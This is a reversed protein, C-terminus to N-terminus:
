ACIAHMNSGRGRNDSGGDGDSGGDSSSGGNHRQQWRQQQRRQWGQLMAGQGQQSTRGAAAVVVRAQGPMGGRAGVPATTVGVAGVWGNVAGTQGQYM